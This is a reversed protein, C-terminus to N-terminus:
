GLGKVVENSCDVCKELARNFYQYGSESDDLVNKYFWGLEILADVSDKNQKLANIFCERAESLDYLGNSSLQILRGKLVFLEVTLECKESYRDILIIAEDYKQEHYLARVAELTAILM